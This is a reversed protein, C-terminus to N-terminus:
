IAVKQRTFVQILIQIVSFFLFMPLFFMFIGLTLITPTSNQFMFLILGRSNSIFEVILLNSLMFSMILKSHAMISILANRFIHVVVIRIRKLGKGKAFEVYDLGTETDIEVMMMRYMLAIPLISLVILPLTYSVEAGVTVVQAILIHTHQFFWIIFLQLLGIVLVDPLSEFLYIIFQIPKRITRPLLVTLFTFLLAVIFATFFSAFLLIMSFRWYSWLMPFLNRNTQTGNMMMHSSGVGYTLRSPHLFDQVVNIVSHFYLNFHPTIGAFLAPLSGLFLLGICTLVFKLSLKYLTQSM